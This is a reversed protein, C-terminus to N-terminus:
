TVDIIVPVLGAPMYEQLKLLLARVRIPNKDRAYAGMESGDAAGASITNPPTTSPFTQPLRQLDATPLLQGYGPQGFSASIFLPAAQRITVSEYQRPVVSNQGWATLRVCGDQLDDVQALEHLICESASFRHAVIRGLVTCRSLSLAGDGFALAADALERPYADELLLRNLTPAPAMPPAAALLGATESSLPVRAFSASQYLSRGAALANLRTLLPGLSDPPPPPGSLPPSAPGGLLAVIGPDLMRLLASVPDLGLQLLRLLRDPDKVQDATIPGLAATRIAQVISNGINVTEVNGAGRTRIPGLVSRDITLTRITGEIWLRVPRLERGDAARLYLGHPPSADPSAFVGPSAATGPDLTCCALTVAAFSGRLVIDQGSVFVGDLTLIATDNAGTVVWAPHGPPPRLLPRQKPGAQLTVTGSITVDAAGSYTLSDGLVVTGGTAPLAVAGGSSLTAIPAPTPVAIQQGRRDYPGAGILSPFGYHYSAVLAPLPPSAPPSSAGDWRFRGRAPRLLLDSAPIQQIEPPNGPEYIMVAMVDPYLSTTSSRVVTIAAADAPSQMVTRSPGATVIPPYISLMTRGGSAGAAVASIIFEQLEGSDAGRQKDFRKVGAVTFVDGVAPESSTSSGWGKTALAEGTQGAGNVVPARLNADLLGQSIPTPLQTDSPSVWASGFSAASRGAAFLPIDRGTPDFCYWGPCHEVPVPTVPGVGLSLLRWVFVGLHPIAPWGFVGQGARTDATHYFEDFATRSRTAGYANRLEATGGIPTSTTVGILGEAIQLQDVPTGPASVPGLPPDLLHRTRGLRRFFEVVKADWGTLNAAVQELVGLTGKRRRYDITNAVDLRQGAPDLGLVLRTDLLAAIYPIVWDDCTEISQDEWLRDISRRLEATTGGIRAVIERLPGTKAGAPDIDLTRYIEPLLAYLKDAYYVAYNDAVPGKM